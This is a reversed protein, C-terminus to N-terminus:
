VFLEGSTNFYKQSCSSWFTRSSSFENALVVVPTTFSEASAFVYAVSTESKLAPKVIFLTLSVFPLTNGYVMLLVMIRTSKGCGKREPSFYEKPISHDKLM